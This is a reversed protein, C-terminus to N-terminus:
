QQNTIMQMRCGFNCQALDDSGLLSSVYDRRAGSSAGVIHLRLLRPM